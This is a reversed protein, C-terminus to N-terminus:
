NFVSCPSSFCFLALVCFIILLWVPQRLTATELTGRTSTLHTRPLNMSGTLAKHTHTHTGTQTTTFPTVHSFHKTFAPSMVAALSGSLERLSNQVQTVGGVVGEGRCNSMSNKERWRIKYLTEEEKKENWAQTCFEDEFTCVCAPRCAATYKEVCYVSVIYSVQICM